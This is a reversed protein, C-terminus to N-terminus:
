RDPLDNPFSVSVAGTPHCGQTGNGSDAPPDRNRVRSIARRDAAAFAASEHGNCTPDAM